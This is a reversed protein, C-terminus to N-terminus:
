SASEEGLLIRFSRATLTGGELRDLNWFGYVNHKSWVMVQTGDSTIQGYVRVPDGAKTKTMATVKKAM